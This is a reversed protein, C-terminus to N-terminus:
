KKIYEYIENIPITRGTEIKIMHFILLGINQIYDPALSSFHFDVPLGSRKSVLVLYNRTDNENPPAWRNIIKSLTNHGKNIYSNTLLKLSAKIGDSMSFFQKFDKDTAMTRPVENTWLSGTARINLPNNNRIGRPLLKNLFQKFLDQSVSMIKKRKYIISITIPFAIFLLIYLWKPIRKDM